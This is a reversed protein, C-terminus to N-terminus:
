TRERVRIGLAERLATQLLLSFNVEAAEGAAKLWAPLTVTMKTSKMAAKDRYPPLWVSVTVFQYGLPMLYDSTDLGTYAPEPIAEGVEEMALLHGTLAEEAMELAEAFTEGQTACGPIQPFLVSFGGEPEPIFAAVYTYRNKM